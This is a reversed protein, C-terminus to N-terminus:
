QLILNVTNRKQNSYALIPLIYSDIQTNLWNDLSNCKSVVNSINNSKVSDYIVSNRSKIGNQLNSIKSSVNCSLNQTVPQLLNYSAIVSSNYHYMYVALHREFAYDLLDAINQLQKKYFNYLNIGGRKGLNNLLTDINSQNVGANQLGSSLSSRTYPWTSQTAPEPYYDKFGTKLDLLRQVLTNIQFQQNQIDQIKTYLQVMRSQNYQKLTSWDNAAIYPYIKDMDITIRVIVFDKYSIPINNGYTQTDQSLQLLDDFFQQKTM